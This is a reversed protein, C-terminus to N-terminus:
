LFIMEAQCSQGDNNVSEFIITIDGDSSIKIPRAGYQFASHAATTRAGAHNGANAHTDVMCGFGVLYNGDFIVAGDLSALEILRRKGIRPSDANGLPLAFISSKLIERAKDLAGYGDILLAEKNVVNSPMVRSPDYVLLAGQRRYSLDFIIEFINAGVWYEANLAKGLANKFTRSDYVTWKGKRFSVIMGDANSAILVEGHHNLHVAFDGSGLASMIPHLFEPTFKYRESDEIDGWKVYEYDMLNLNKDARFYTHPSSALPDLIKQVSPDTLDGVGEGPSVVINCSVPSNEYTRYRLEELYNLLVPWNVEDCFENLWFVAISHAVQSYNSRTPNEPLSNFWNELNSEIYQLLNTLRPTPPRFSYFVISSGSVELRRPNPGYDAEYWQPVTQIITKLLLKAKM